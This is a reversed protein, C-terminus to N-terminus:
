MGGCWSPKYSPSWEVAYGEDILVQGATRGDPLRDWVLPRGFHDRAGSDEIKFGPTSILQELRRTALAALMEEAKCKANRTEPTDVGAVDPAGNGMIRLLVGDCKLTDGDVATLSACSLFASALLLLM